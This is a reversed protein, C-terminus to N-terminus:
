ASYNATLFQKSRETKESRLPHSSDGQLLSVSREFYNYNTDFNNFYHLM